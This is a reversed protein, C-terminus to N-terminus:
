DSTHPKKDDSINHRTNIQLEVKPPCFREKRAQQKPCLWNVWKMFIPHLVEFM